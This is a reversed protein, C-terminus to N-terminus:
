LLAFYRRFFSVGRSTPCRLVQDDVPHNATRWARALMEQRTTPRPRALREHEFVILPEPEDALVGRLTGIAARSGQNHRKYPPPQWMLIAVGRRYSM